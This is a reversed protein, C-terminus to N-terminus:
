QQRGKYALVVRVGTVHKGPGAWIV